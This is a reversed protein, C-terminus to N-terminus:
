GARCPPRRASGTALGVLGVEGLQHDAADTSSVTSRPSDCGASVVSRPTRGRPRRRGRCDRGDDADVELDSGALDEADRADGAVALVLEDLRDDPRRLGVRRGSRAPRSPRSPARVARSSRPRHRRRVRGVAVPEAEDEREREGVVDHQRLVVPRREGAADQAVEARDLLRCVVPMALTRRGSATPRAHRGARQGTPVLLLKDDRALEVPASFSRMRSWGVRPRSTPLMSNMWRWAIRIRSSPM